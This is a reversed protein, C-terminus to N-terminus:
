KESAVARKCWNVKEKTKGEYAYALNNKILTDAVDKGDIKVDALIRFYKDVFGLDIINGKSEKFFLLM